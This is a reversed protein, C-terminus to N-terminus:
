KDVEKEKFLPKQVNVLACIVFVIEDIHPFLSNPVKSLIRFDKIRQNVREIHIRVSAINYTEDVEEPTFQDKHGFPPMIFIANKNEIQTKIQPFGKDAFVVDGPEILDVLGCDNTIFCDGARGGYCKSVYTIFGDPACGVMFKVTHHHKYESYMLVKQNVEPPVETYVETCDIIVRTDPYHRKFTEPLSARITSKSPWVIFNQLLINLQQIHKVFIRHATTRHINFIVALATFSLGTKLKVLTILFSTKKDVKSAKCDPLMTLLWSFIALTVGTLSSM